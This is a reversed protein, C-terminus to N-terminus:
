VEKMKMLAQEAEERTLFVTKGFDQVGWANYDDDIYCHEDEYIEIKFITAVAPNKLSEILYYITDGANCILKEILGQEEAAKYLKLKELQMAIEIFVQPEAKLKINKSKEDCFKILGDILM